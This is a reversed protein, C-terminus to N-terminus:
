SNEATCARISINQHIINAIHECQCEDSDGPADERADHNAVIARIALVRFRPQAITVGDFRFQPNFGHFRAFVAVDVIVQNVPQFVITHHNAVRDSTLDGFGVVAGHREKDHNAAINKDQHLTFLASM